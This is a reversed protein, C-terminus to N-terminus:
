EKFPSKKKKHVVGIFLYYLLSFMYEELNIKAAKNVAKNL